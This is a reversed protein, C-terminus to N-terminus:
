MRLRQRPRSRAGSSQSPSSICLHCVFVKLVSERRLIRPAEHRLGARYFVAFDKKFAFTVDSGDDQITGSLQVGHRRRHGGPQNLEGKAAVSVRFHAGDNQSASALLGKTRAAINAVKIVIRRRPLETVAGVVTIGYPLQGLRDDARDIPVRETAAQLRGQRTVNAKRRRIRPKARRLDFKPPD